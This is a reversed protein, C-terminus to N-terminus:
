NYCTAFQLQFVWYTQIVITFDLFMISRITVLDEGYLLTFANVRARICQHICDEEKSIQLCYWGGAQPRRTINCGFKEPFRVANVLADEGSDVCERMVTIQHTVFHYYFGNGYDLSSQICYNSLFEQCYLFNSELKKM